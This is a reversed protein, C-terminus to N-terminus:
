ECVRRKIACLSTHGRGNGYNANFYISRGYVNPYDSVKVDEKCIWGTVSEADDGIISEIWDIEFLSISEECVEPVVPNISNTILVAAIIISFVIVVTCGVVIKNSFRCDEVECSKM